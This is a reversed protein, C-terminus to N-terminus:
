AAITAGSCLAGVIGNVNEATILREASATAPRLTSAPRTRAFPLNVAMGGLLNGSATVEAMALEAGDGHGPALSEAPGTFGLIVGLTVSEQASAAGALAMTAASAMLIKKMM